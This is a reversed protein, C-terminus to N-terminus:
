ALVAQSTAGMVSFLKRNRTCSVGNKAMATIHASASRRLREGGCFQRTAIPKQPGPKGNHSAGAMIPRGDVGLRRMLGKDRRAFRASRGGRLISADVSPRSVIAPAM